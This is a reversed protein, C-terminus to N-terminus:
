KPEFTVLDVRLTNANINVKCTYRPLANNTANINSLDTKILDEMEGENYKEIDKWTGGRKLKVKIYYNSGTQDSLDYYKNNEKALNTLTIIDHITLNKKSEYSTYKANYENIEIQANEKEIQKATSSLNIYLYTGLSLILVGVIIEAAMLLAKSANEM